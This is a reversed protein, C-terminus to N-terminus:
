IREGTFTTKYLIGGVTLVGAGTLEGVPPDPQPIPDLPEGGFYRALTRYSPDDRSWEISRVTMISPNMTGGRTHQLNMNHGWEHKLLEAVQLLNPFYGPDLNCFVSDSCSRNNFEALGITSGALVRWWVRINAQGSGTHKVLRVGINAYAKVVMDWLADTDLGRPASSTDWSVTVGEKQCPMPWSGSGVAELMRGHAGCLCRVLDADLELSRGVRSVAQDDNLDVAALGADPFDPHWCRPQGMVADTKPGLVGDPSGIAEEGYLLQLKELAARTDVSQRDLNDLHRLRVGPLYGLRKLWRFAQKDDM